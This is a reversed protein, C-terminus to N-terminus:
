IRPALLWTGCMASGRDTRLAGERLMKHPAPGITFKALNRLGPADIQWLPVRRRNWGRFVQHSEVRSISPAPAGRQVGAMGGDRLLERPWASRTHRMLTGEDGLLISPTCSGCMSHRWFRTACGFFAERLFVAVGESSRAAGALKAGRTCTSESAGSPPNGLGGWGWVCEAVCKCFNM